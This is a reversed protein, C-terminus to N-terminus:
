ATKALRETRPAKLRARAGTLLEQEAGDIQMSTSLREQIAWEAERIRLPLNGADTELIANIYLRSWMYSRNVLDAGEKQFSQQRVVCM